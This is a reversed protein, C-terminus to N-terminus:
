NTETRGPQYTNALEESTVNIMSRMVEASKKSAMQTYLDDFESRAVKLAQVQQERMISEYKERISVLQDYDTPSLVVVAPKNRITISLAIHNVNVQKAYANINRGFVVGGVQELGKSFKAVLM